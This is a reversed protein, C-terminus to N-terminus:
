NRQYSINANYDYNDIDRATTINKYYLKHLVLRFLSIYCLYLKKLINDYTEYHSKFVNQPNLFTKVSHVNMLILDENM